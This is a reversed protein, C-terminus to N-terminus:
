VKGHTFRRAERREAFLNIVSTYLVANAISFAAGMPTVVTALGPTAEFYFSLLSLLYLGSCAMAGAVLHRDCHRLDRRHWFYFHGRGLVYIHAVIAVYTLVSM